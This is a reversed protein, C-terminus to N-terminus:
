AKPDYRIQYVHEECYSEFADIAGGLDDAPLARRDVVGEPSYPNCGQDCVVGVFTGDAESVIFGRHKANYDVLWHLSNGFAGEDLCQKWEDNRNRGDAKKM